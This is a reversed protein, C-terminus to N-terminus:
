LISSCSSRLRGHIKAAHEINARQLFYAPDSKKKVSRAGPVLTSLLLVPIEAMAGERFSSLLIVSVFVLDTSGCDRNANASIV